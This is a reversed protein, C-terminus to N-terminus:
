CIAIIPVGDPCLFRRERCLRRVLFLVTDSNECLDRTVLVADRLRRYERKTERDGYVVGIVAQLLWPSRKTQTESDDVELLAPDIGLEALKHRYVVLRKRIAELELERGELNHPFHTLIYRGVFGSLVIVAMGVFALIGMASYPVLAAHFVALVPGVLGAFIHFGMWVKLDGLKQWSPLTKRLLYALSVFMLGAGLTGLVLGIFGSPRLFDHLHHLPRQALPMVYYEKGIVFLVCLLGLILVAVKRCVRSMEFVGGCGSEGLALEQDLLEYADALAAEEHAIQDHSSESLDSEIDVNDPFIVIPIEDSTLHRCLSTAQTETLEVDQRDETQSALRSTTSM